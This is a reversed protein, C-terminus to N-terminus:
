GKASSKVAHLRLVKLHKCIFYV